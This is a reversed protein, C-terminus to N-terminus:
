AMTNWKAILESPMKIREMCHFHGKPCKDSGIKSCPRCKLGNVEVIINEAVRYPYMGLEPMTNGWVSVIPKGFAAAIHMLGTDHTVVSHAQQVWSASQNM